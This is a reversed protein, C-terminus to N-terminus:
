RLLVQPIAGMYWYSVYVLWALARGSLAVTDEWGAEASSLCPFHFVALLLVTHLSICTQLPIDM